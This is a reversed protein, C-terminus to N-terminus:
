ANPEITRNIPLEFEYKIIAQDDKKTTKNIQMDSCFPGLRVIEGIAKEANYMWKSVGKCVRQDHALKRAEEMSACAILFADRVIQNLKGDYDFEARAGDNKSKTGM